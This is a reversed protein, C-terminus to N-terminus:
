LWSFGFDLRSLSMELWSFGVELRSIDNELWSFRKEVRSLGNRAMFLGNRGTFLENRTMFLGNRSTFLGNRATFLGNLVIFVSCRYKCIVIAISSILIDIIVDAVSKSVLREACGFGTVNTLVKVPDRWLLASVRSFTELANKWSLIWFWREM